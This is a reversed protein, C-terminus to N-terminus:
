SAFCRFAVFLVVMVIALVSTTWNDSKRFVKGLCYCFAALWLFWELLAAFLIPGLLAVNVIQRQILSILLEAIGCIECRTNEM